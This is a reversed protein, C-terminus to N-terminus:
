GADTVSTSSAKNRGWAKMVCLVISLSPAWVGFYQAGYRLGRWARESLPQDVFLPGLTVLALTGVLAGTGVILILYAFFWGGWFLIGRLVRAPRVGKM